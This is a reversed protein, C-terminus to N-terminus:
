HKSYKEIHEALRSLIEGVDVPDITDIVDRRVGSLRALINMITEIYVDADSAPANSMAAMKTVLPVDGFNIPRLELASLYAPGSAVPKSLTIKTMHDGQFPFAREFRATITILHPDAVARPVFTLM